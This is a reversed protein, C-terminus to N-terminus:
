AANRNDSTGTAVAEISQEIIDLGRHLNEESIILPILLKLVQDESGATEIVLGREFCEESVKGAFEGDGHFEVGQIFGRGRVEAKLKPFRGVMETLRKEVLAAQTVIKNTLADDKWFTELAATATVFGPNFGRFTGNHEGPAWEDHEPKLLVVALPLGYGSLSKSLTIMDPDVDWDDFSFFKGTRGCGVQIDDIILLIGHDKCIKNLREMWAQSAVNVGGEAQVTELIVAAPKDMGSSPDALLQEFYNLSDMEGDVYGCFPMTTTHSLPIGAGARKFANGTISLSGLTMGHYGNTFCVIQERGTVKRALKMAAEVANTGTPGCFQVRYDMNRPKLIIDNLAALFDRKAVTYMDLGHTIHGGEIYELLAKRMAPHNHGYSLAGAGSFFDLYDKGDETTMIEAEAKDFVVPFSRCYGRVASEHKEFINM